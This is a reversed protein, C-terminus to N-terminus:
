HVAADRQFGSKLADFFADRLLLPVGAWYSGEPSEVTGSIPIHFAVVHQNPGELLTAVATILTGRLSESVSQVALEEPFHLADLDSVSANAYGKVQGDHSELAADLGAGGREVDLGAYARLLSNWELMRAGEILIKCDFSPRRTNPLLQFEAEITGTKMPVGRGRLEITGRQVPGRSPVNSARLEIRDLYVDVAPKTHFNRFHLTGDSIDIRNVSTPFLQRLTVRWDVGSPGQRLEPTPGDVLNVSPSSFAITGAIHARLLTPWDLAYEVRPAIVFPVPILGNRKVLRLNEITYSLRLVSVDVHDFSGAYRENTALAAVVRREVAVPLLARITCLAAVSSAVALWVRRSRHWM